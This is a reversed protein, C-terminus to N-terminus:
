DYVGQQMVDRRCVGMYEGTTLAYDFASAGDCGRAMFDDFAAQCGPALREHLEMFICIAKCLVGRSEPDSLIHREEGEIDLKIFDFRKRPVKDQM